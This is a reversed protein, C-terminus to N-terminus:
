TRVRIKGIELLAARIAAIETDMRRFRTKMDDLRVRTSIIRADFAELSERLSKTM